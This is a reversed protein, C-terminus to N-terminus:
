QIQIFHFLFSSTLTFSGQWRVPFYLPDACILHLMFRLRVLFFGRQTEYNRPKHNADYKELVQIM